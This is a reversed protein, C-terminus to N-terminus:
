ATHIDHIWGGDLLRGDRLKQGAAVNDALGAGTRALRQRKRQRDHGRAVWIERLRLSEDQNGGALERSLHSPYDILESWNAAEPGGLDVAAPVHGRLEVEQIRAGLDDDTRGASCKVMKISARQAESIQPKKDEVFRILHEVGTETRIDVQDEITRRAANLDGEKRCRDRLPYVLDDAVAEVVGDLHVHVFRLSARIRANLMGNDFHRLRLLEVREAGKQVLTTIAIHHDEAPCLDADLPEFPLQVAGSDSDRCKLAVEALRHSFPHHTAEAAAIRWDQNGRVDGGASEINERDLHDDIEVHRVRRLKQGMAQASGPSHAAMARGDGEQTRRLHPGPLDDLPLDTYSDLALHPITM